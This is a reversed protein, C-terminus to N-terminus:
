SAAEEMFTGALTDAPRARLLRAAAIIALALLVGLLNSTLDRQTDFVYSTTPKLMGKGEGLLLYSGYEMIEHIAGGGMIFLLTTANARWGRMAPWSMVTTHHLAFGVAFAFYGHVLIDWSFPLPSRQYFGYAGLDHLMVAVILLSFHLPMLFLRRRLLYPTWILPILFVPSIRYTVVKATAAILAFLGSAVIAMFCM